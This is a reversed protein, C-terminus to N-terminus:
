KRTRRKTWRTFKCTAFCMCILVILLGVFSIIPSDFFVIKFRGQTWDIIPMLCSVFSLTMSDGHRAWLSRLFIM